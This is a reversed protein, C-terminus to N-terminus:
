GWPSLVGPAIPMADDRPASAAAIARDIVRFVAQAARLAADATAFDRGGARRDDALLARAFAHPERLARDACSSLRWGDVYLGKIFVPLQAVLDLSEEATLRRRLTHLVCRLVRGAHDRDAPRGIEEALELLFAHASAAHKEINM